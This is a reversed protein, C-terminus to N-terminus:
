FKAVLAIATITDTKRFGPVPTKVWRTTHKLKLSLTSNLQAALSAVNNLQQDRSDTLSFETAAENEFTATASIVFKYALGATGIATSLDTGAQRQENAYGAGGKLVLTHKASEYADFSVGAQATNRHQIGAFRDRKYEHRATLSLRPSLARAAQSAVSFSQAKVANNDETRIFASKSTFTWADHRGTLSLGAGVSRTSANGTTGVFSFEASGELAPPPPPAPAAQQAGGGLLGMMLLGASIWEM